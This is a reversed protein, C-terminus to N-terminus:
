ASATIDSEIASFSEYLKNISDVRFLRDVVPEPKHQVTTISHTAVTKLNESDKKGYKMAMSYYKIGPADIIWDRTQLHIYLAKMTSAEHPMQFLRDARFSTKASVFGKLDNLHLKGTFTRYLDELAEIDHPSISETKIRCRKNEFHIEPNEVVAFDPNSTILDAGVSQLKEKFDDIKQSFEELYLEHVSFGNKNPLNVLLFSNNEISFNWSGISIIYEYWAGHARNLAGQLSKSMDSTPNTGIIAAWEDKINSDMISFIDKFSGNDGCEMLASNFYNCFTNKINIKPLSDQSGMNFNQNIQTEDQHDEGIFLPM